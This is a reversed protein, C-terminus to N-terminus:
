NVDTLIARHHKGIPYRPTRVPFVKYAVIRLVERGSYHETLLRQYLSFM